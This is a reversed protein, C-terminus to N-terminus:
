GRHSNVLLEYFIAMRMPVGAAVQERILSQQCDVVESSIEMGRNVSGPHMVLQHPALRDENIQFLRAYERRSPILNDKMRESQLRLLYIVDAEGLDDLSYKYDVSEINPPLLTPPGAITVRAGMTQLAEINSRAVRSHAVDGIIWVHLGDLEGIRSQLTFLDVLSQSPHQAMGDGANIVSADTLHSVMAAAGAHPHRIVIAEPRYAALTQATDRLSESKHISSDHSNVSIVDASLRKAAFEFSVATRTSAEYFLNIVTQGRLVPLKKIQHRSVDAFGEARRLFTEMAIRDLDSVSLLHKTSHQAQKDM